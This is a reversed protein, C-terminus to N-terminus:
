VGRSTYLLCTNELVEPPPYCVPDNQVEEDRLEFAAKNPTSYGIYEINDAAVRPECLFNIYLEQRKYVDLHTYSVPM